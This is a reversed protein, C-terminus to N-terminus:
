ILKNAANEVATQLEADTIAAGQAQVNPDMVVTPAIANASVDPAQMTNQAWRLRSSHGAVNSAENYIYSAYTLCAVKIRSIFAADKMLDASEAYSLAM